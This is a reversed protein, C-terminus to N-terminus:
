IDYLKEGSEDGLPTGIVANMSLKGEKTITMVCTARVNQKGIVKGICVGAFNSPLRNLVDKDTIITNDEVVSKAAERAEEQTLSEYSGSETKV